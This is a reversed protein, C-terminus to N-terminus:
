EKEGQTRVWRKGVRKRELGTIFTSPEPYCAAGSPPRSLLSSLLSAVAIHASCDARGGCCFAM